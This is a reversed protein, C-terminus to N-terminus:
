RIKDIDKINESFIHLAHIENEECLNHHKSGLTWEFKGKVPTASYVLYQWFSMDGLIELIGKNMNSVGGIGYRSVQVYKLILDLNECSTKRLDVFSHVPINKNFM